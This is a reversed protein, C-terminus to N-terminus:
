RQLRVPAAGGASPLDCPSGNGVVSFGRRNFSFVGAPVIALYIKGPVPEDKRLPMTKRALM